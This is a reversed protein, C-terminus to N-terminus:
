AVKKNTSFNLNKVDKRSVKGFKNKIFQKFSKTVTCKTHNRISKRTSQAKFRKLNNAKRKSKAATKVESTNNTPKKSKTAAPAKESAKYPWINVKFPLKRLKDLIHVDTNKIWLYDDSMLTVAIKTNALITGPPANANNNFNPISLSFLFNWSVFFALFRATFIM